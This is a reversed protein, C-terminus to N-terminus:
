FEYDPLIDKLATAAIGLDALGRAGEGVVNDRKLLAIQAFTLPPRPLVSLAAALVTWLAFPIPLFPRRRGSRAMVLEFLGRYSYITPGGLEYTEGVAGPHTLAKLAAEAVDGRYVPQLKTEGRGFLPIVPARRAMKALLNVFQDDPAFLASPRLITAGEFAAMVLVEGKARARVYSSGSHRDAGIGSLHVLRELGQASAQRAVNRAGLEHVAEFTEAGQEVYLGVANIAAGAGELVLAVSDEDRVDAYVPRVEGDGEARAPLAVRDPRRVAVRVGLGAAALRLVIERGLFGSGGFVAVPRENSQM